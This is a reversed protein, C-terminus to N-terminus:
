QKQSKIYYFSVVTMQAIFVGILFSVIDFAMYKNVYLFVVSFVMLSLIWGIYYLYKKGFVFRTRIRLVLFYVFGMLFGTLLGELVKM